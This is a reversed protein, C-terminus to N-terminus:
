GLRQKNRRKQNRRELRIQQVDKPTRAEVMQDRRRRFLPQDGNLWLWLAGIHLPDDSSLLLDALDPFTLALATKKSTRTEYALIRWGAILDRGALTHSRIDKNNPLYKESIALLPRKQLITLERCAILQERQAGSLRVIARSGKFSILLGIQPQGKSAIGVM